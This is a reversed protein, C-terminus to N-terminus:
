NGSEKAMIITIDTKIDKIDSQITDLKEAYHAITEIAKANVERTQKVEKMLVDEREESKKYIRWIFFALAIVAAIPFGVTSVLEIIAAIDM